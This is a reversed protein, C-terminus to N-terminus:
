FHVSRKKQIRSREDGPAASSSRNPNASSSSSFFGSVSAAPNSLFASSKRRGNGSSNGTGIHNDSSAHHYGSNTAGGGPRPRQWRSSSNSASPPGASVPRPPLAPHQLYHQQPPPYYYGNNYSSATPPPPPPVPRSASPPGPPPPVASPLEQGETGYKRRLRETEKAIEAERLRQEKEEAELMKKIRREEERERKAREKEERELMAQLRKTEADIAAASPTSGAVSGGGGGGVPGGPGSAIASTMVAPGDHTAHPRSGAGHGSPAINAASGPAPIPLTAGAPRSNKRRGGGTAAAGGELNFPDSRPVLYLDRIVQASLLLVLDLGKRDQVEVRQLNPEYITVAPDRAHKFLAVTIDPEKSRQLGVTQGTMYCTMDKNGLRGDRKWRFANKPTVNVVADGAAASSTATSEPLMQQRDLRSASPARFTEIPIEFEWSETRNWSRPTYRVVVSQDPNYLQVAFSDPIKPTQGAAETGHERHERVEAASLTPQQWEPTVAAEGYVVDSSNYPDTLAAAYVGRCAPKSVPDAIRLVYEPAPDSGSRTFYVVSSSPHDPMPRFIFTPLNEDLM